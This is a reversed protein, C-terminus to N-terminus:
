KARILRADLWNAHDGADGRDAFDVILALRKAGRIDVSCPTAPQGGRIVPSAYAAAFRGDGRDVYVRFTVSGVGQTAGDIALEAEFRDYSEGLEFALRSTSHMAVGKVRWDGRSRLRGGLLNADVGHKRWTATLFPIHRYGVPTLDSLYDFRPSQLLQLMVLQRVFRTETTVLEAGAATTLKVLRGTRVIKRVNVSSGDRFAMRVVPLKDSTPQPRSLLAPNFAIARVLSVPASAERAAAKFRLVRIPEEDVVERAEVTPETEEDNEDKGDDDKDEGDENAGDEDAAIPAKELHQMAVNSVAVALEDGNTLRIRDTRAETNALWRNIRDRSRMDAPPQMVLGRVRNLQIPSPEWVSRQSFNEYDVGVSIQQKELSILDGAVLSGDVLALYPVAPEQQTGWGILQDLGLRFREGDAGEFDIRWDDTIRIVRAERRAGNLTRLVGSRSVAQASVPASSAITLTLALLAAVFRLVSM